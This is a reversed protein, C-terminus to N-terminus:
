VCIRIDDIITFSRYKVIISSVFICFLNKRSLFSCKKCATTALVVFGGFIILFIM